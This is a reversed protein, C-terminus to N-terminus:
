SKIYFHTENETIEISKALGAETIALNPRLIYTTISTQNHPGTNNAHFIQSIIVM